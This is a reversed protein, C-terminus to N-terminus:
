GEDEMKRQPSKSTHHNYFLTLLTIVTSIFLTPWFSWGQKIAIGGIVVAPGFAMLKRSNEQLKPNTKPSNKKSTGSM